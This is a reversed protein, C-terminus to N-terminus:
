VAAILQQPIPLDHGQVGLVGSAPLLNEREGGLGVHENLPNRGPAASRSPTPRSCQWCTLGRSM